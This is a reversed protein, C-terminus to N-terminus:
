SSLTFAVLIQLWMNDKSGATEYFHLQRGLLERHNELSSELWKTQTNIDIRSGIERDSYSVSGPCALTKQEYKFSSVLPPSQWDVYVRHVLFLSPPKEM